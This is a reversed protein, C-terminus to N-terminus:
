FERSNYWYGTKGKILAPYTRNMTYASTTEIHKEQTLQDPMYPKTIQRDVKSLIRFARSLTESQRAKYWAQSKIKLIHKNLDCFRHIKITEETVM